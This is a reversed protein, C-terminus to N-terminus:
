RTVVLDERVAFPSELFTKTATPRLQKDRKALTERYEKAEPYEIFQASLGKTKVYAEIEELKVHQYFEKRPNVLNLRRTELLQHLGLELAPANDTYLMVHLDFPFPVAAGSLELIREAPELRRTMGIKYVDGGGGGAGL